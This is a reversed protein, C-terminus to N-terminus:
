DRHIFVRIRDPTAPHKEIYIHASSFSSFPMELLEYDNSAPTFWTPLPPPPTKFRPPIFDPKVEDLWARSVVLEFAWEGNRTQLHVGLLRPILRQLWAHVIEPQPSKIESFVLAYSEQTTPTPPSPARCGSPLLLIALLILARSVHLPKV